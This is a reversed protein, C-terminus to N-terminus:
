NPAFAAPAQMSSYFTLNLMLRMRRGYRAALLGFIVAGLPRFARAVTLAPAM